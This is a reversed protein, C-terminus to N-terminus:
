HIEYEFINNSENYQAAMKAIYKKRTQLAEERVKQVKNWWKQYNIDEKQPAAFFFIM